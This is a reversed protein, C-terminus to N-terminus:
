FKILGLRIAEVVAATRDCVSLKRFINQIHMKATHVSVNLCNAIENNDKGESMCKLVEIERKTITTEHIFNVLLSKRLSNLYRSFFEKSFNVEVIVNKGSTDVIEDVISFKIKEADLDSFSM